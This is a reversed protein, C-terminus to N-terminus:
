TIFSAFYNHAYFIYIYKRIKYYGSLTVNQNWIKSTIKM